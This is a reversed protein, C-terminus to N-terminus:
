FIDPKVFPSIVILRTGISRSIYAHHGTCHIRFVLRCARVVKQVFPLGYAQIPREVITQPTKKQMIFAYSRLTGKTCVYSFLWINSSSEQLDNSFEYSKGWYGVTLVCDVNTYYLLINPCM